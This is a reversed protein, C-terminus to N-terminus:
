SISSTGVCLRWEHTRADKTYSPVRCVVLLSVYVGLWGCVRQEVTTDKRSSRGPCHHCLAQTLLCSIDSKISLNSRSISGMSSGPGLVLSQIALLTLAFWFCLLLIVGLTKSQWWWLFKRWCCIHVFVFVWLWVNHLSHSVESCEARFPIDGDFGEGWLETFGTSKSSSPNELNLTFFSFM